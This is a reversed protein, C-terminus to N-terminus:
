YAAEPPDFVVPPAGPKRETPGMKFFIRDTCGTYGTASPMRKATTIIRMAEKGFDEAPQAAFIRVNGTAGWPAVDYGIIAWGEISRRRFNPPYTLTPAVAWESRWPCTSGVPKFNTDAPIPPPPLTAANLRYPYQCGKRVGPAFRSQAVAKLSAADLAANGNGTVPKVHIPKGSQDIDFGVMSWSQRGPQKPLDEFVPFVRTRVPPVPDFCTSGAPRTRAWVAATPRQQPFMTYAM